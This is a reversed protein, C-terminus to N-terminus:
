GEFGGSSAEHQLNVFTAKGHAYITPRSCRRKAALNAVSPCDRELRYVTFLTERDQQSLQSLQNRAWDCFELTVLRDLPAPERSAWCKDPEEPYIEIQRRQREKWDHCLIKRAEWKATIFWYEAPMFSREGQPVRTLARVAVEGLMEEVRDNMNKPPVPLSKLSSVIGIRLMRNILEDAENNNTM